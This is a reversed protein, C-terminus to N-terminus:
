AQRLAAPPKRASALVYDFGGYVTDADFRRLFRYPVRGALPLRRLLAPDQALARHWGPFVDNRISPVNVGEFGVDRVKEAYIDRTYFNNEPIALLRAAQRWNFSDLRRGLPHPSPEAPIM